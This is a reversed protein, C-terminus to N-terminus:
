FMQLLPCKCVHSILATFYSPLQLIAAKSQKLMQETQRHTHADSHTIHKTPQNTWFLLSTVQQIWVTWKVRTLFQVWFTQWPHGKSGVQKSQHSNWSLGADVGDHLCVFGSASTPRWHVSHATTPVAVTRHCSARRVVQRGYLSDAPHLNQTNHSLSLSLSHWCYGELRDDTNWVTMFHFISKNSPFCILKPYTIYSVPLLTTSAKVHNHNKTWILLM